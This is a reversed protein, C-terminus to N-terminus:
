RRVICCWNRPGPEARICRTERANYHMEGENAAAAALLLSFCLPLSPPLPFSPREDVIYTSGGDGSRQTRISTRRPYSLHPPPPFFLPLLTTSIFLPSPFFDWLPLPFLSRFPFPPSFTRRVWRQHEGWSGRRRRRREWPWVQRSAGVSNSSSSSFSGPPFTKGEGKEKSYYVTYYRGLTLFLTAEIRKRRGEEKKQTRGQHHQSHTFLLLLLRIPGIGRDNLAWGGMWGGVLVKRGWASLPFPHLLIHRKM